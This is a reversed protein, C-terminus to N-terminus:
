GLPPLVHAVHRTVDLAVFAVAIGKTGVTVEGEGAAAFVDRVAKAARPDCVTLARFFAPASLHNLDAQNCRNQGGTQDQRGNAELATSLVQRLDM